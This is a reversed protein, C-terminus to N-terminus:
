MAQFAITGYSQLNVSTAQELAALLGGDIVLGTGPDNGSGLFTISSSRAAINQASIQAGSAVRIDGTTALMLSNGASITAGAEIVAGTGSAAGALSPLIINYVGNAPNVNDTVPIQGPSIQAVSPLQVVVPRGTPFECWRASRRTSHRTITGSSRRSRPIAM